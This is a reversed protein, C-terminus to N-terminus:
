LLIWIQIKKATAIKLPMPCYTHHPFILCLVVKLGRTLGAKAAVKNLTTNM